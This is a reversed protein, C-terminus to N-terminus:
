KVLVKKSFKSAGLDVTELLQYHPKNKEVPDNSYSYTVQYVKIVRSFPSVQIRYNIYGGRMVNGIHEYYSVPENYYKEAVKFEDSNEDNIANFYYEKSKMGKSSGIGYVVTEYESNEYKDAQIVVLDLDNSLHEKDNNVLEAIKANMMTFLEYDALM